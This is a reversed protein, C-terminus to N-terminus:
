DDGDAYRTEYRAVFGGLSPVQAEPTESLFWHADAVIDAACHGSRLLKYWNVLLGRESRDGLEVFPDDWETRFGMQQLERLARAAEERTQRYPPKPKADSKQSPEFKLDVDSPGSANEAGPINNTPQELKNNSSQEPHADCAGGQAGAASEARVHQAGEHVHQADDKSIANLEGCGVKINYVAATDSGNARYRETRFVLGLTELKRLHIQVTRRSLGTIDCITSVSPWAKGEDNAHKCLAVLVFKTTPDALRVQRFAWDVAKINTFSGVHMNMNSSGNGNVPMTM